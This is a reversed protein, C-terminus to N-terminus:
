HRTERAMMYNPPQASSVPHTQKCWQHQSSPHLHHCHQLRHQQHVQHLHTIYLRRHLEQPTELQHNCRPNPQNHSLVQHPNLHVQHKPELHQHPLLMNNERQYQHCPSKPPRSQPYNPVVLFRVQKPIHPVPNLPAQDLRSNKSQWPLLPRQKNYSPNWEHPTTKTPKRLYSKNRKTRQNTMMQDKLPLRQKPKQMRLVQVKSIFQRTTSIFGSTRPNIGSSSDIEIYRQEKSHTLTKLKTKIHSFFQLFTPPSKKETTWTDGLIDQDKVTPPMHLFHGSSFEIGKTTPLLHTTTSPQYM